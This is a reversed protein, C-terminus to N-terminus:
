GRDSHFDGLTREPSDRDHVANQIGLHGTSHSFLKELVQSSHEYSSNPAVFQSRRIPLLTM